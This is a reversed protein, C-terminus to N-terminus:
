RAPSACRLSSGSASCRWRWCRASVLRWRSTRVPAIVLNTTGAALGKVMAVFSSDTLSVKRTLNNDIAWALCAALVAMAVLGTMPLVPGIVGGCLTAGALWGWEARSPRVPVARRVRRWLALGLGSGLYLLAALMWPGVGALLIKAIPAGAGFLMAAALAAWVGRDVRLIAASTNSM